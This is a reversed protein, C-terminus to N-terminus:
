SHNLATFFHHWMPVQYSNITLFSVVLITKKINEFKVIERAYLWSPFTKRYLVAKITYITLEYLSSPAFSPM